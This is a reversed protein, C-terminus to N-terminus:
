PHGLLETARVEAAARDADTAEPWLGDCAPGWEALEEASALFVAAACMAMSEVRDPFAGPNEAILWAGQIGANGHGLMLAQRYSELALKLDQPGGRGQELMVGYNTMGSPNGLLAALQFLRRAETQDAEVGIGEATIYGLRETANADGLATGRRFLAVAGPLDAPGGLGDLLFAGLNGISSPYDLAAARTYFTRAVTLDAPQGPMGVEYLYGLNHLAPPYGQDAARTFWDIALAADQPVGQGYQYASGLINQARAVGAEAAPVIVALAAPWDGAVFQDRAAQLEADTPVEAWSVMPLLLLGLLLGMVGRGRPPGAHLLRNASIGM